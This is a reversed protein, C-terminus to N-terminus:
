KNHAQEMCLGMLFLSIGSLPFRSPKPNYMDKEMDKMLSSLMGHIDYNKYVCITDTLM